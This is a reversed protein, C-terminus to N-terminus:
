RLRARAAEGKGADRCGMVVYYGQQLLAKATEFGIGTNAGTVLAVRYDRPAGGGGGPPGGAPAAAVTAAGRRCGCGSLQHRRPACRAPQHYHHHQLVRAAAPGLARVAAM